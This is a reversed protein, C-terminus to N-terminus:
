EEEFIPKGLAQIWAETKQDMDAKISIQFEKMKSMIPADLVQLIEVLEEETFSEEYKPYLNEQLYKPLEAAFLAKFQDVKGEMEPEGFSLLKNMLEGVFGTMAKVMESKDVIQQILEKKEM